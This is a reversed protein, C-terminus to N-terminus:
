NVKVVQPPIWTGDLISPNSEKPWYMRLMPIFESEPAPLWNAEKDKLGARARVVIWIRFWVAIRVHLRSLIRIGIRIGIGM